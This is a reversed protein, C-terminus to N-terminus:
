SSRGDLLKPSPFESSGFWTVLVERAQNDERDGRYDALDAAILLPSVPPLPSSVHIVVNARPSSPAPVIFHSALFAQAVDGDVYGEAVHSSYMGSRPDSVGSVVLREDSVIEPIDSPAVSSALRDARRRLLSRLVDAPNGDPASAADALRLLYQRLRWLEQDDIRPRSGAALRLLHASMARSLPRSSPRYHRAVDVDVDAIAWSRGIRQAPLVGDAIMQLVRQRSVGLHNAAEPVSMSSM